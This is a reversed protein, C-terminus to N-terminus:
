SRRGPLLRLRLRENEQKIRRRNKQTLRRGHLGSLKRRRLPLGKRRPQQRAPHSLEAYAADPMEALNYFSTDSVFPEVRSHSNCSLAAKREQEKREAFEEQELLRAELPEILDKLAKAGANIRQTERLHHEGLEKRRHEIAIRLERLTLRTVRALKM